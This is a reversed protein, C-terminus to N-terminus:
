WFRGAMAACYAELLDAQRELDANQDHSSVRTYCVTTLDGTEHGLLQSASYYRTGGAGKRLPVLHGAAEWKRLTQPTVGM